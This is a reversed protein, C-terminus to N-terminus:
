HNLVSFTTFCVLLWSLTTYVQKEDEPLLKVNGLGLMGLLSFNELWTEKGERKEQKESMGSVNPSHEWCGDCPNVHKIASPQWSFCNERLEQVAAYDAHWAHSTWVSFCTKLM